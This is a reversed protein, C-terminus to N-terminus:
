AEPMHEQMFHGYIRHNYRYHGPLAGKFAGLFNEDAEWSVCIPAGRIHSAIDVDPYIKALAKLALDVRKEAPLPLVKLADTMWSYSLCIVAPKDPGNDFFYTGRTHRDTLTMSMVPRGTADTDNWFPRDVMVFTKAAQMYRTRDLAMWLKQDFLSEEVEIATTLLHTQCNSLVAAYLTEGELEIVTSGAAPTLPNPCPASECGMLDLYHYFTRSSVTFRMGGLEAVM